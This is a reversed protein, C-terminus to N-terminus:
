RRLELLGKIERLLKNQEKLLQNNEAVEKRAKLQQLLLAIEM